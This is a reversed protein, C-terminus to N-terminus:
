PQASDITGEKCDGINSREIRASGRLGNYIRLEKDSVIVNTNKLARLESVFWFITSLSILDLIMALMPIWSSLLIHVVVSEIVVLIILGIALGRASGTEQPFVLEKSM